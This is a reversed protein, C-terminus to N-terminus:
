GAYHTMRRAEDEGLQNIEEVLLEEIAAALGAITPTEFFQGMPLEVQFSERVRSIVKTVLLSHGGLGFFDDRVGVREVGLVERWITALAEETPTGPAAFAENLEPRTADPAPLARRNIKGNPTLPLANLFVFASPLMYGPLKTQLAARLEGPTLSAQDQTSVVYAVLRKDGPADERAVAVCERVAPHRALASEIEGLEIRHGRIKVQHDVRGLYEIGGDPLFRALDGSKYLRAGPEASFPNAVFREATLEPRHWYGRALGAGGVYIEGPVGIPAPQRRSDLIYVQWGPIPTGILSGSGLDGASLPRFTVHVTTETIGYMNVLLPRQDGQREFWPTLSRMELAEGGFIVYRLALEPSPGPRQGAQILQRFASPTQNLVTVQERALLERFAEPSRSVLHPVIVLRGGYLLAGWMEWVSFDFAYSHFLTWVDRDSFQYYLETSRFLCAVNQHTVM